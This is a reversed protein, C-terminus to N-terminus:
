EKSNDAVYLCDVMPGNNWFCLMKVFLVPLGMNKIHKEKAHRPMQFAILANVLHLYWVQCHFDGMEIKIYSEAHQHYKEEATDDHYCRKLM